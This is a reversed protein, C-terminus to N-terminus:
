KKNQGNTIRHAENATRGDKLAWLAVGKGIKPDFAPSKVETGKDQWKSQPFRERLMGVIVAKFEDINDWTKEVFAAAKQVAPHNAYETLFTHVVVPVPSKRDQLQKLIELGSVHPMELDLVLLDPLEDVDTMRLVERGDNAVRVRYGASILERRLFKRVHRNRDAILITFQQAM